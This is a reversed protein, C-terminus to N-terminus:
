APISGSAAMVAVGTAQDEKGGFAGGLRTVDVEIHNMPLSLVRAAVKQVLTPGQTSSHIKIGGNGSPYAYAGQTEIYLHEQAGSEVRGEFIHDCASWAGSIDGMRFTRSPILLLGKERALRPDTIVELESIEISILKAAKRATPEDDAVVLAVPQGRFHVEDQAFLMEDSIIGGIDNKGPIDKWTFVKHVGPLSMAGSIDLSTIVGHASPSWFIFGHLCNKLVPIDDLYVSKGTVHGTAELNNM